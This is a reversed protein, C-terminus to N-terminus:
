HCVGLRVPGDIYAEIGDEYYFSVYAVDNMIQGEFYFCIYERHLDTDLQNFRAIEEGDERYLRIQYKGDKMQNTFDSKHM